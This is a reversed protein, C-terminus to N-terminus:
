PLLLHIRRGGNLATAKRVVNSLQSNACSATSGDGFLINGSFSHTGIDWAANESIQITLGSYEYLNRDGSLWSGSLNINGDLGVFYSVNINRLIGFATAKTRNDSPCALLAPTGLENSMVQFNEAATTLGTGGEPQPISWPFLDARDNAWLHLAQGVRRLNNLCEVMNSRPSYSALAPIALAALLGLGALSCLLEIRTFACTLFSGNKASM